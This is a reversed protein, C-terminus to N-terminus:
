GRRPELALSLLGTFAFPIQVSGTCPKVSLDGARRSPFPKRDDSQSGSLDKVRALSPRPEPTGGTM